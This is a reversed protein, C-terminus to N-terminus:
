QEAAKRSALAELEAAHELHGEPTDVRESLRYVEFVAAVAPTVLEPDIGFKLAFIAAVRPMPAAEGADCIEKVIADVERFLKMPNM